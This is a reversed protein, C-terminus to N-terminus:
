GAAGAPAPAQDPAPEPRRYTRGFDVREFGLGEYLRVAAQNREMTQAEVLGFYQDQLYHLINALLFKGLGQGRLAEPVAFDVLGVAPLGWRWSFGEMEWVEARAAPRGTVTEELRFELPEIPGLVCEQWWSAVGARPLVRVNYRRRITAYRPDAFAIPRDLRRQFVLCTDAPRYGHHELFAAAAKDSDLFGPLESGGYLGLYFPNLPRMGGAYLTRAGRSRLYAECRALLESGIGRRQYLPRVGIISTVGSAHSLGSETSNAGFGAHAFGAPTTGDVAVILGAPDFYPKSFAHRELPSSHRLVVAGRGTFTENWVDVLGPPDDNRFTRFQVVSSGQVARKGFPRGQTVM